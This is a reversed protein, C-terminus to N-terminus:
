RRQPVPFPIVNDGLPAAPYIDPLRQVLGMVMQNFQRQAARRQEASLTVGGIYDDEDM